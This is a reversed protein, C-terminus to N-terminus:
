ARALAELSYGERGLGFIGDYGGGLYTALPNSSVPTIVWKYRFAKLVATAGLLNELQADTITMLGIQSKALNVDRDLGAGLILTLQPTASLPPLQQAKPGLTLLGDDGPELKPTGQLEFIRLAIACDVLSPTRTDDAAVTFRWEQGTLAATGVSYIKGDLDDAM